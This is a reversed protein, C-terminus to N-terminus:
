AARRTTVIQRLETVEQYLDRFLATNVHTEAVRKRRAVGRTTLHKRPTFFSDVLQTVLGPMLHDDTCVNQDANDARQPPKRTLYHDPM